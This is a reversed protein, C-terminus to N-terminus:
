EAMRRSIRTFANDVLRKFDPEWEKAIQESFGRGESGPHNVSAKSVWPGTARGGGSVLRAPQAATKAIYGTKFKLMPARVAKIVHPKTGQDVYYWIMKHEGTPYVYVTISNSRIVKRGQFGPKHKWDEVVWEHSKVLAPKVEQDMVAEMEKRAVSALNSLMVRRKPSRIHYLFAKVAERGQRLCIEKYNELKYARRAPVHGM